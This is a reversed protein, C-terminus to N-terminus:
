FLKEKKYVNGEKWTKWMEDIRRLFQYSDESFPHYMEAPHLRHTFILMKSVFARPPLCKRDVRTPYKDMLRLIWSYSRCNRIRFDDWIVCEQGTYEPWWRGDDEAWYTNKDESMKFALETKGSGSPGYIWIVHTKERRPRGYRQLMLQVFQWQRSSTVQEFLQEETAGSKVMSRLTMVDTRKGQVPRHGWEVVPNSNNNKATYVVTHEPEGQSIRLDCKM